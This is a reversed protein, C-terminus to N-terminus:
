VDMLEWAVPFHLSVQDNEFKEGCAVPTFINQGPICSLLTKQRCQEILDLALAGSVTVEHASASM